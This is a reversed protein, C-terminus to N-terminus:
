ALVFDFVELGVKLVHLLVDRLFTIADCDEGMDFQASGPLCGNSPQHRGILRGRLGTSLIRGKMFPRTKYSGNLEVFYKPM